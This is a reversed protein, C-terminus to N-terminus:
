YETTGSESSIPLINAEMVTWFISELGARPIENNIYHQSLEEQQLGKLSGEDLDEDFLKAEFLDKPKSDDVNNENSYKVWRQSSEITNWEEENFTVWDGELAIVEGDGWRSDRSRKSSKGHYKADVFMERAM